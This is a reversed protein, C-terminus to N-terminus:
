NGVKQKMNKLVEVMTEDSSEQISEVVLKSAQRSKWLDGFEDLETM